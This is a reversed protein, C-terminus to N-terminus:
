VRGTRMRRAMEFASEIRWRMGAVRALVELPIGERPAFVVYYASETPDDLSRRVLLWHGWAQEEPTLQLRWLPTWAWDYLRPGKSGDGASLRQWSQVQAAIESAAM